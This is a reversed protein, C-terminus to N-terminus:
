KEEFPEEFKPFEDFKKLEEEPEEETDEELIPYDDEIVEEEVVPMPYDAPTEIIAKSFKVLEDLHVAINIGLPIRGYEMYGASTMAIIDGNSDVSVGGSNGPAMYADLFIAKYNFYYQDYGMTFSDTVKSVIGKTFYFTNMFPHGYNYVDQGILIPKTRFKLPKAVKKDEDNKFKLIAIDKEQMVGVIEMDYVKYTDVDKRIQIKVNEIGEVVHFCTLVYGGEIFFGSGYPSYESGVMVVSDKIKEYIAIGKNVESGVNEINQYHNDPTHIGTISNCGVLLFAVLTTIVWKKM